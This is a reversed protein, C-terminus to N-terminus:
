GHLLVDALRETSCRSFYPIYEEACLVLFLPSSVNGNVVM